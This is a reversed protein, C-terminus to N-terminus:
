SHILQNISHCDVTAKGTSHKIRKKDIGSATLWELTSESAEPHPAFTNAVQEATWHKGATIDARYMLGMM